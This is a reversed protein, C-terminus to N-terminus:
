ATSQQGKLFCKTVTGHLAEKSPCSIATIPERDIANGSTLIFNLIEDEENNIIFDM